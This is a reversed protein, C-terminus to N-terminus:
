SSDTAMLGTPTLTLRCRRTMSPSNLGINAVFLVCIYCAWTDFLSVSGNSQRRRKPASETRRGRRSLRRKLTANSGSALNSLTVTSNGNRAPRGSQDAANGLAAPSPVLTPTPPQSLRQRLRQEVEEEQEGGEERQQQPGPAMDTTSSAASVHRVLDGVVDDEDDELITNDAARPRFEEADLAVGDDRIAEQFKDRLDNLAAVAASHVLRVTGQSQDIFVQTQQRYVDMAWVNSPIRAHLAADRALNYHTLWQRLDSGITLDLLAYYQERLHDGNTPPENTVPARSMICRGLLPIRDLRLHDHLRELFARFLLSMPLLLQLTEPPPLSPPLVEIGSLRPRKAGLSGRGWTELELNWRAESGHFRLAGRGLRAEEEVRRELFGVVRFGQEKSTDRLRAKLYSHTEM